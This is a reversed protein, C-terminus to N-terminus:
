AARSVFASLRLLGKFYENYGDAKITDASPCKDINQLTPAKM